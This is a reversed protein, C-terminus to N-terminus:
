DLNKFDSNNELLFEEGGLEKIQKILMEEEENLKLYNEDIINIDKM